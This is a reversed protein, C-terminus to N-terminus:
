EADEVVADEDWWSETQRGDGAKYRVFYQNQSGIYEARGIVVGKEGSMSLKVPQALEFRFGPNM